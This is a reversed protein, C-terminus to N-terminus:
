AEEGKMKALAQEAKEKTLFVTKGFDIFDSLKFGRSIIQYADNATLNTCIESNGTYYDCNCNSGFATTCCTCGGKKICENKTVVQYTRDGVRCPLKILLGDEEAQEYAKLKELWEALQEKEKAFKECQVNCDSEYPEINEGVIINERYAEATEKAQKIAEDITLREM